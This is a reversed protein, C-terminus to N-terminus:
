AQVSVFFTDAFNFGVINKNNKNKTYTNHIPSQVIGDFPSTTGIFYKDRM